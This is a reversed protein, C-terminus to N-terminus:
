SPYFKKQSQRSKNKLVASVQLFMILFIYYKRPYIHFAMISWPYLIGQNNKLEKQLTEVICIHDIHM